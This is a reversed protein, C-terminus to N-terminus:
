PSMTIVLPEISNFGIYVQPLENCPKGTTVGYCKFVENM